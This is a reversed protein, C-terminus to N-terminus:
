LTSKPEASPLPSYAFAGSVQFRPYTNPMERWMDTTACGSSSGGYAARAISQAPTGTEACHAGGGARKRSASKVCAAIQEMIRTPACRGCQVSSGLRNYIQSVQLRQTARAVTSRLQQDSFVNCSCVIM